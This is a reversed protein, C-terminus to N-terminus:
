SSVRRALGRLRNMLALGQIQVARRIVAYRGSWRVELWIQYPVGGYLHIEHTSGDRGASGYHVTHASLTQRANGTRDTWNANTKMWPVAQSAQYDVVAAVLPEMKGNFRKLNVKLSGPKFVFSGKGSAM